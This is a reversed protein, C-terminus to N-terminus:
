FLLMKQTVKTDILTGHKKLNSISICPYVLALQYTFSIVIPRFISVRLL